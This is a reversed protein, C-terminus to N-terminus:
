IAQVYVLPLSGVTVKALIELPATPVKANVPVLPRVLWLRVVVTAPVATVPDGCNRVAKPVAVVMVSVGVGPKTILLMAQLPRPAPPVAVGFRAAPVIVNSAAAVATAAAMV